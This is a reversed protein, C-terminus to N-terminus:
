AESHIFRVSQFAAEFVPLYHDAYAQEVMGTFSYLTTDRQIFGQFQAADLGFEEHRFYFMALMAPAGSVETERRDFLQMHPRPMNLVDEAADLYEGEEAATTVVQVLIQPDREFDSTAAYIAAGDSEDIEDWEDPLEFSVGTERSYMHKTTM